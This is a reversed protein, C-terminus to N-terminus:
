NGRHIFIGWVHHVIEQLIEFSNASISTGNEHTYTYINNGNIVEITPTNEM